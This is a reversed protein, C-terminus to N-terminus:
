LLGNSLADLFISEAGFIGATTGRSTTSLLIVFSNSYILDSNGGFLGM